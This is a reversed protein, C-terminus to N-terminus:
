KTQYEAVGANPNMKDFDKIIIRRVKGLKIDKDLAENYRKTLDALCADVNSGSVICNWISKAYNEGAVTVAPVAPYLGEYGVLSFDALRGIKSKDVKEAMYDSLPLAYGNECYGKIFDESSFFKIVEWAAGKDKSSSFMCYGKQPRADVTGKVSGDLSPLEGVVWEFKSIPFQSTFVGAEQSANGWIAFNGEAFQARMADVGQNNSGPFVSGNKFLKQALLLPEKYGSFDFVGNVFDYHYIGSKNCIGELWREFQASSCTSIGYYKGAGKRTVADAAAVLEELTAPLTSIGAEDLLNKNYIMRTGSRVATYIEYPVGDIANIGEVIHKSAETVKEFEPDKIYDTLPVLMGADVFTKLDFGTGRANMGFLDPANGSSYAMVLMNPYDEVITTLVIEINKDNTANFEDIKRQVYALDHRDNTWVNVTTRGTAASVKEQAGGAFVIGLAILMVLMTAIIKKMREEEKSRMYQCDVVSRPASLSLKKTIHLVKESKCLFVNFISEGRRIIVDHLVGM